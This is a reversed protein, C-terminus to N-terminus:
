KIPHYFKCNQGEEFRNVFKEYSGKCRQYHKAVLVEASPQAVRKTDVHSSVLPNKNKWVCVNINQRLSINGISSFSSVLKMSSCSRQFWAFDSINTIHHIPKTYQEEQIQRQVMKEWQFRCNKHFYGFGSVTITGHKLANAVYKGIPPDLMPAGPARGGTQFINKAQKTLKSNM